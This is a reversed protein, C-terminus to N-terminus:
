FDDLFDLLDKNANTRSTPALKSSGVKGEIFGTAVHQGSYKKKTLKNSETNETKPPLNNYKYNDLGHTNPDIQKSKEHKKLEEERNIQMKEVWDKNIFIVNNGIKKFFSFNNMLM